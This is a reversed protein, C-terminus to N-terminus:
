RLIHVACSAHRAVWAATSGLLYDAIEPRHSAIVICDVKHNEAYEVITHSVSGAVIATEVTQKSQLALAGLEAEVAKRNKELVDAPVYNEVYSPVTEQVHLLTVRGGDDLLRDAVKLAAAGKEASGYAIPVLIHPYM